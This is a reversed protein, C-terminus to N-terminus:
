SRSLKSRIFSFSRTFYGIDVSFIFYLIGLIVEFINFTFIMLLSVGFAGYKTNNSKLKYGVMVAILLAFQMFVLLADGMGKFQLTHSNVAFGIIIMSLGLAIMSIAFGIRTYSDSQYDNPVEFAKEKSINNPKEVKKKKPEKKETILEDNSLELIPEWNKGYGGGNLIGCFVGLEDNNYKKRIIPGFRKAAKIVEEDYNFFAKFFIIKNDIVFGRIVNDFTNSDEGLSVYWEKHDMDSNELYLIDDHLIMFLKKEKDNSEM